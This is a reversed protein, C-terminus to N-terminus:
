RVEVLCLPRQPRVQGLTGIQPTEDEAMYILFIEEGRRASVEYQGGNYVRKIVEFDGDKTARFCLEEPRAIVHAEGEFSASVDIEGLDSQAREGQVMVKMVNVEGTLKAVELYSPKRYLAEPRDIQLLTSGRSNQTQSGLVGIRDAMANAEHRDHTVLVVAIGMPKLLARTEAAVDRRLAADLHAFPEDLLLVRPEPAIARALAVRQEQGGSLQHPFRRALDEIELLRMLRTAKTHRQPDRYIGFCINDLVSLHPFLAHDQFVMGVQRKEPAVWLDQSDQVCRGEVWVEGEFAREFGAVVRLLTSKGSGSGGVLAVCEGAQLSFDVEEFTLDTGYRHALSGVRLVESM